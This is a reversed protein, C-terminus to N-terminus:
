IGFTENDGVQTRWSGVLHVKNEEMNAIRPYWQGVVDVYEDVRDPKVEHFVISHLYKGRALIESFSREIEIDHKRAEKTGYILSSIPGRKPFDRTAEEMNDGLSRHALLSNLTQPDLFESAQVGAGSDSANSASPATPSDSGERSSVPSVSTDFFQSDQQEKRKRALEQNDRFEKQRENFEHVSNPTIDRISPVRVHNVASSSFPRIFSPAPRTCRLAFM